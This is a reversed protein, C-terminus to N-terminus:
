IHSGNKDLTNRYFEDLANHECNKCNCDEISCEGGDSCHCQHECYKCNLNPVV